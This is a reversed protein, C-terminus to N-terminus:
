PTATPDSGEETGAEGAAADEVILGGALGGGEPEFRPKWAFQLVFEFKPADFFPQVENGKEDKLPKFANVGGPMGSGENGYGGMGPGGIGPGGMGPGGM